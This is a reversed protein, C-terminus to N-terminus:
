YGLQSRCLKTSFKCEDRQLGHRKGHIFDFYVSLHMTNNSFENWVSIMFVQIKV